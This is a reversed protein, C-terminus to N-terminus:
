TPAGVKARRSRWRSVGYALPGSLMGLKEWRALEVPWDDSQKRDRSSMSSAAFAVGAPLRRVLTGLMRPEHVIASTMYAGFGVGYRFAQQSLASMERPHRHWVVAAPQYVLQHRVVVRFFSALDDGGKATTGIGIAPDFGGLRRLVNTDFAMNAGSGLRGIAFPFLPDDPRNDRMDYTRRAFGKSFGGHWELNLQAPTELESPLILGTVCGVDEGSAFGEAIATLWGPDVIVDDDAFAVIDTTTENLGRNHAWSLGRRDERVYRVRRAFEDAILTQTEDSSPDNDVVLVEFKPYDVALLTRLCTRLPDPRDRTAVIVTIAPPDALVEAREQLCRPEATTQLGLADISDVRPLGDAVLHANIQEHLSEWVAASHAQWAIGKAGDLIVTGLPHAHLRILAYINQCTRRANTLQLDTPPHSLEIEARALPLEEPSVSRLALHCDAAPGSLDKRMTAEEGDEEDPSRLMAYGYGITTALLGALVVASRACAARRSGRGVVAELLGRFFASPLVNVVYHRETSLADSSGVMGSVRYKSLGESFCRDLFYRLRTREPTVAHRVAITPDFLLRATPQAQSLRICLETEECGIPRSGVRGVDANFEGVEAFVSHRFSMNCGIFNRVRTVAVPLGRHSCGVVWDYEVPFWDPRGAAPWVPEAYGGVGAVEPDLYHTRLRDAWGPQIEADDDVFALVERSARAIGSNRAGSLGRSRTNAIVRDGYRDAMIEYLQRNHDIVVIIEDGSNMQGLLADVCNGLQSIRETTYACVIISLSVDRASWTAASAPLGRDISVM